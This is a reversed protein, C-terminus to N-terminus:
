LTPEPLQWFDPKPRPCARASKISESQLQRYLDDGCGPWQPPTQSTCCLADDPQNLNVVPGRGHLRDLLAASRSDRENNTESGLQRPLGAPRPASDEGRGSRPRHLEARRPHRPRNDGSPTSSTAWCGARTKPRGPMARCSSSSGRM